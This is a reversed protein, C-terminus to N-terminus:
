EGGHDLDERKYVIYSGLDLIIQDVLYSDMDDLCIEETANYLEAFYPSESYYYDWAESRPVLYRVDCSYDLMINAILARIYARDVDNDEHSSLHAIRFDVDSPSRHVLEVFGRSDRIVNKSNACSHLQDFIMKSFIDSDSVKAVLINIRANALDCQNTNVIPNKMAEPTYIFYALTQNDHLAMACHIDGSEPISEFYITGSFKSVMEFYPRRKGKKM